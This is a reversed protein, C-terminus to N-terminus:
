LWYRPVTARYRGFEDGFGAALAREERLVQRHVWGAAPPLTAVVWASGSIVGVGVQLLAWGVYMPNRSTAYPGSTVLREPRSLDVQGAASWSRVVLAAGGACLTSGVLRHVVRHGPLQWPRARHLVLGAAIGVVNQEPVPVNSLRGV